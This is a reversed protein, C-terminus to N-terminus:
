VTEYFALFRIKTRKRKMRLTRQRGSQDEYQNEGRRQGKM